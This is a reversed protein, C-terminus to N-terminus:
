LAARPSKSAHRGMMSLPWGRASTARLPPSRHPRRKRPPRPDIRWGSGAISPRPPKVPSVFPSRWPVLRTPTRIEVDKLELETRGESSVRLPAPPRFKCGANAPKVEVMCGDQGLGAIVLNLRIRAFQSDAPKPAETEPKAEESNKPPNTQAPNPGQASFGRGILISTVGILALAAMWSRARM